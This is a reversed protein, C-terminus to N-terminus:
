DGLPFGNRGGCRSCETVTAWAQYSVTLHDASAHCYTCYEPREVYHGTSGDAHILYDGGHGKWKPNVTVPSSCTICVDPVDLIPVDIKPLDCYNGPRKGAYKSFTTETM